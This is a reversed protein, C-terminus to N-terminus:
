TFYTVSSIRTISGKEFLCLEKVYSNKGEDPRVTIFALKGSTNVKLKQLATFECFTNERVKEM